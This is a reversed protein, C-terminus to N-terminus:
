PKLKVMTVENGKRNYCVRNMYARMLLIGRGTPRELNEDATPDPVDELCFGEGEDAVRIVARQPSVSFGIIIRKSPDNGNGHRIANTIAEELALKIAFAEQPGYGCRRVEQLIRQEPQKAASLDSPIIIETLSECQGDDSPSM